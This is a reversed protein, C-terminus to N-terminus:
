HRQDRPIPRAACEGADYAHRKALPLTGSAAVAWPTFGLATTAAGVQGGLSAGIGSAISASALSRYTGHRDNTSRPEFSVEGHETIGHQSVRPQTVFCAPQQRAHETM